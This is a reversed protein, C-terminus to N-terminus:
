SAPAKKTAGGARAPRKAAAKKATTTSAAKKTATTKAAARKTAAKKTATTKAPAKKAPAKKTASKTTGSTKTAKTAGTPRTVTEATPQSADHLVTRGVGESRRLIGAVRSALDEVSDIGLAGLQNSIESRVVDLLAETATRTREVIENVWDQADDRDEQGIKVVERVFEEARTRTAQALSEAADLYKRFGDDDDMRGDDDM